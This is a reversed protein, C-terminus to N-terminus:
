QTLRPVPVCSISTMGFMYTTTAKERYRCQAFLCLQHKDDPVHLPPPPASAGSPQTGPSLSGVECTMSFDASSVAHAPRAVPRLRRPAPLCTHEVTSGVPLPPRSQSPPGVHLGPCAPRPPGPSTTIDSARTAAPLPRVKKVWGLAFYNLTFLMILSFLAEAVCGICSSSFKYDYIKSGGNPRESFKQIRKHFTQM